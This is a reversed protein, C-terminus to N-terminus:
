PYGATHAFYIASGGDRGDTWVLHAAGNRDAALGIYEGISFENSPTEATTIQLNPSWTTGGDTSFAYYLNINGTRSDFWAAHLMDNADVALVATWQDGTDTDNV